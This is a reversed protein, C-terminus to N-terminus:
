GEGGKAEGPKQRLMRQYQAKYRREEFHCDWGPVYLLQYERNYWKMRRCWRRLWALPTRM